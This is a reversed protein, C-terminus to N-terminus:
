DHQRLARLGTQLMVLSCLWLVTIASPEPVDVSADTALNAPGVNQFLHSQWVLLDLGNVLGDLNFDAKTWDGGSDSFLNSQWALLDLGNVTGDLNADGPIAAVLSFGPGGNHDYAPALVMDPNILLGNIQDFTGIRTDATLVTFEDLYSPTFGDPLVVDLSGALSAQGTVVILSPQSPNFQVFLSVGPTLTLGHPATLTSFRDLDIATPAVPSLPGVVLSANRAELRLSGLGNVPQTVTQLSSLDITGSTNALFDVRENGLPVTISQVGSLNVAAGGVATVTHASTKNADGDTFGADIGSIASLNLVTGAGTASAIATTLPLGVSSYAAPLAGAATLQAGGSLVFRTNAITTLSPLSLSANGSLEFRMVGGTPQITQLSSLNVQSAAGSIVVRIADETRVPPSITQVGSLDIVGGGTATITHTRSISPNADDFGANISVVPSLDLLTGSGSTSMLTSTVAMSASSYAVAQATTVELQAGSQLTFRANSAVTLAPLSLSAGGSLDFLVAGAGANVAQLSSLNIQSSADSLRFIIADEPRGPPTITQVGSFDVEGGGTATITHTSVVTTADNFGANISTAASFDLLSSAGSVAVLTTVFPSGISSYVVPQTGATLQAGGSLDFYVDEATQLAPLSLSAGNSLIFMTRGSNSGNITALLPLIIQSASDLIKFDLFDESLVPPTVTQLGSLDIVGGNSAAIGNRRTARNDDDFSVDISVISSLDLLSGAGNAQMIDTFFPLRATYATQQPGAATVQAGSSVDFQTNSLTELVPLSLSAGNSLIFRTRGGTGTANRLSSLDIQSTSDPITFVLNDAFGLPANINEVGSLDIAGGNRATVTHTDQAGAGPRNFAADLTTVSALGISTGTGDALLLSANGLLGTSSFSTGGITIGAGNNATLRNQDGSLTAGVGVATFSGADANILGAINAADLVTMSAGAETRITSGVALDLTSINSSGPLDFDLTVGAPVTVQYTDVADNAPVEGGDWNAPDSWSLGDGGGTWTVAKDVALSAPTLFVLGIAGFLYVTVRVFYSHM